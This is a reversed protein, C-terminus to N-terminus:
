GSEGQPHRVLQWASSERKHGFFSGISLPPVVLDRDLYLRGELNEEPKWPGLSRLVTSDLITLSKMLDAKKVPIPDSDPSPSFIIYGDSLPDRHAFHIVSEVQGAKRFSWTMRITKGSDLLKGVEIGSLGTFQGSVVALNEHLEANVTIEFAPLFPASLLLLVVWSLKGPHLLRNKRSNTILCSASNLLRMLKM